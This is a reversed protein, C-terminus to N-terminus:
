RDFPSCFEVLQEDIADWLPGVEELTSDYSLWGLAEDDDTRDTLEVCLNGHASLLLPVLDAPDPRYDGETDYEFEGPSVDLAFLEASLAFGTAGFAAVRLHDHLTTYIAQVGQPLREVDIRDSGLSDAPFQGYWCVYPHEGRYDASSNNLAYVLVVRDDKAGLRALFLGAAREQLVALFRPLKGPLVSEWQAVAAEMAESPGHEVADIWWSPVIHREADSLEGPSVLAADKYGPQALQRTLEERVSSV